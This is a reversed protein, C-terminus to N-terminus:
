KGVREWVLTDDVVPSGLEQSDIRLALRNQGQFTFFRKRIKGVWNPARDIEVHHLVYGEKAHLEVTACYAGLGDVASLAESPTPAALSKWAPRRPDMAVYCMHGTDSYTLYATSIPHQRSTGDALRQTRSVLRWMGIFPKLSDNTQAQTGSLSTLVTFTTLVMGSIMRGM